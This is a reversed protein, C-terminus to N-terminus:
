EIIHSLLNAIYAHGQMNPHDDISYFFDDRMNLDIFSVDLGHETYSGLWNKPTEISNSGSIFMVFVKKNALLDSYAALIREVSPRHLNEDNSTIYNVGLAAKILSKISEPVISKLAIYFNRSVAADQLVAYSENADNFRNLALNRDIPYQNNASLDNDCYQIIVTDIDELNKMLALRDLERETAYSSVGLNYVRRGTIRQLHASFTADDGVGWGMAHSDGIVAIRPLEPDFEFNNVRGSEDFTLITQFEINEFYCEGMKPQYVLRGGVTDVCENQFHWLNRMGGFYFVRQVNIFPYYNPLAILNSNLIGIALVLAVAATVILSIAIISFGFM